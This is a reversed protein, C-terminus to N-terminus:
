SLVDLASGRAIADLVEQAHLFVSSYDDKEPVYTYNVFNADKRKKKKADASPYFSEEEEFVDFYCTDWDNKIKPKFPAKKTRLNEWDISKFFPHQKIEPLTLRQSASTMLKKILSIAERSLNAEAPITLYKKWQIIKKCTDSPNDAFFPPYGVMMEFLIAGVSWWDASKDYGSEGFVEPAIYDPTGVTSYAKARDRKVKAKDITENGANSLQEEKQALMPFNASDSMKSLGFDSLKLHGEKDILLNDPKLDRHICSLNHVAEVSAVIEATYFASEEENLIDKKMLLSMFDGGPLFEMVLYLFNDDQFSYKLKVIWPSNAAILIEKETRVHLIQNKKYMDDKRMKKIAVIEGTEKERCVRVEGFAGRGIITISEFDNVTM